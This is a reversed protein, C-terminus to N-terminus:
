CRTLSGDAWTLGGVEWERCGVRMWITASHLWTVWKPWAELGSVEQLVTASDANVIVGRSIKVSSPMLLGILTFLCLLGGFGILLM